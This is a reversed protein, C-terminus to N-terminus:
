RRAGLFNALARYVEPNYVLGLHGGGVFVTQQEPTAAAEPPVVEDERSVISLLSTEPNLPRTADLMFACGCIPFDCNPDLLRRAVSSAEALVRGMRTRPTVGGKMEASQRYATIPSGLIALHSVRKQMQVAISWAIVGGRSHGILAVPADRPLNRNIEAQVRERLRLPCGANVALGSRLPSYGLRRLWSRLPELYLDSGFLGPLVAVPQGNGRTAGTGYFIPDLLLKGLELL